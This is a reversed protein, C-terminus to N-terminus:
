TARRRSPTAGRRRALSFDAQTTDTLCGSTAPVRPRLGEDGRRRGSRRHGDDLRRTAPEPPPRSRTRAQPSGPSRTCASGPRRRRVAASCVTAGGINSARGADAHGHRVGHRSGVVTCSPVEDLRDPYPPGAREVAYYENTYWFTCGDPDLTMASYDGWSTWRRRRLASRRRRHGRDAVTETQTLTNVPDGALRGAYRIAPYM